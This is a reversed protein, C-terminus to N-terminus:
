PSAEKAGPHSLTWARADLLPALSARGFTQALDARKREPVM